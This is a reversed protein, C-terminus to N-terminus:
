TLSEDFGWYATTGQVAVPYHSSADLDRQALYEVPDAGDQLLGYMYHFGDDIYIQIPDSSSINLNFPTKWIDHTIEQPQITNNPTGTWGMCSGGTLRQSLFRFVYAGEVLGIVPVGMGTVAETKDSTDWESLGANDGVLFIEVSSFDATEVNDSEFLSVAFGNNELFTKYLLGESDDTHYIFAANIYV